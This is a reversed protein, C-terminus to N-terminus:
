KICFIKGFNSLQSKIYINNLFLIQRPLFTPKEFLLFNINNESSIRVGTELSIGV